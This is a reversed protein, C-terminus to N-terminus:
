SSHQTKRFDLEENVEHLLPQAEPQMDGLSGALALGVGLVAVEEITFSEFRRM